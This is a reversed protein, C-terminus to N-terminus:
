MPELKKYFDLEGKTGNNEEMTNLHSRVAVVADSRAIFLHRILRTPNVPPPRPLAQKGKSETPRSPLHVNGISGDLTSAPAGSPRRKLLPNEAPLPPRSYTMLKAEPIDFSLPLVLGILIRTSASLRRWQRLNGAILANHWKWLLRTVGITVVITGIWSKVFGLVTAEKGSLCQGLAELTWMLYSANTWALRNEGGWQVLARVVTRVTAAYSLCLGFGGFIAKFQAKTEEENSVTLLRAALWGTIYAPIHIILIPLFAIARPHLLTQCLQSLVTFSAHSVTPIVTTASSFLITGHFPHLYSLAAHSIGTYHLLGLYKVLSAKTTHLEENDAFLKVFTQSVGVYKDLGLTTDKWVLERAAKASHYTDWDPADISMEKLRQHIETTIGRVAARISDNEDLIQETVFRSIPIPKGYRIHVRSQYRSKNTYVIAAPVLLLEKRSGGLDVSTHANATKMYEVAAWAAGEKVQAISPETYSTGEPFVGVVEGRALAASTHQFLLGTQSISSDSGGGNGSSGLNNPSRYVPISGSSTLMAGIIPNKFLTSKAWYCIRRRYPITVSLAAIDIIENHHTAAIIIPGDQPVNEKGSVYVESYFGSILWDSIKRLFRYALM